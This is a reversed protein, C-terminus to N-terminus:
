SFGPRTTVVPAPVQVNGPAIGDFAVTITVGDVPDAVANAFKAGHRVLYTSIGTTTAAAVNGALQTAATADTLAPSRLFRKALRFQLQPLAIARLATLVAPLDRESAPASRQMRALLERARRESLRISVRLRKAPPEWAITVLRSPRRSRRGRFGGTRIRFFRQGPVPRYSGPRGRRARGRGLAPERLLLGAAEATLPQFEEAAPNENSPLTEDSTFHGPLTGPLTEYLDIEAEVPWAEAGRDLLYTELTGGDSWPLAQAVQRTIAVPFARTYKRFRYRPRASSPMMVWFGANEATEREPLDARLLQDPLYAAAAGAFAQQVAASVQLQDSLAEDTLEDLAGNITAEVASALAEGALTQQQHEVAELGLATFGVDVVARAIASSPEQGTMRAITGSAEPGVMRKILGALPRAILNRLKDRAGTVKLGLKLLPRVALVAPVFQEIEALPPQSGTHNSLQDALRARANDLEAVADIEPEETAEFTEGDSEEDSLFLSLLQQDFAEAMAAATGAEDAAEDPAEGVGLRKALIPVLPRVASPLIRTLPKLLKAVVGKLLALGVKKLRALLPGIVHKGITQIGSKAVALVGKIPDKVFKGVDRLKQTVFRRAKRVLRGVFNELVESDLASPNELSGLLEDLEQEAIGHLDANELGAALGDIAREWETVLPTIWEDLTARAEADSPTASWQQTAALARAAGENLLQELAEDFEEDHLEELFDSEFTAQEDAETDTDEGFPSETAYYSDFPSEESADPADESSDAGAETLSSLGAFPSVYSETDSGSETYSDIPM